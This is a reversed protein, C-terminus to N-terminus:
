QQFGYVGAQFIMKLLRIGGPKEKKEVSSGYGGMQLSYQFGSTSAQATFRKCSMQPNRNLEFMTRTIAPQNGLKNYTRGAPGAGAAALGSLVYASPIIERWPQVPSHSRARRRHGPQFFRSLGPLFQFLRQIRGSFRKEQFSSNDGGDIVFIRKRIKLLRMQEQTDTRTIFCSTASFALFALSKKRPKIAEDRYDAEIQCGNVPHDFQVQLGHNPVQMRLSPLTYPGIAHGGPGLIQSQQAALPTLSRDHQSRSWVILSITESTLGDM